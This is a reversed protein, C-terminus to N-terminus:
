NVVDQLSLSFILLWFENIVGKKVLFYSKFKNLDEANKIEFDIIQKKIEKLKNIM